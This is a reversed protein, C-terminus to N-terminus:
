GGAQRADPADAASPAAQPGGEPTPNDTSDTTQAGAAATGGADASGPPGTVGVQAPQLLQGDIRYGPRIVQAVRPETADPRTDFFIADHRAPDFPEGEDGIREVGLRGLAEGIERRGLVVGRAWPDDALREPIVALARDLDDLLPLLRQVVDARTRREDEAREEAVRRRFNQFDARERRVLDLLQAAEADPARAEGTQRAPAAQPEPEGDHRPQPVDQM